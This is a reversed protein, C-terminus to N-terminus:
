FRLINILRMRIRHTILMVNAKLIQAEKMGLMQRVKSQLAGPGPGAPGFYNIGHPSIYSNERQAGLKDAVPATAGGAAPSQPSGSTIANGKEIIEGM